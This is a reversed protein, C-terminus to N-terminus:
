PYNHYVIPREVPQMQLLIHALASKTKELSLSPGIQEFHQWEKIAENYREVDFLSGNEYKTEKIRYKM